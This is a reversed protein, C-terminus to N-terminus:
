IDFCIFRIIVGVRVSKMVMRSSEGSVMVAVVVVCGVCCLVDVFIIVVGVGSCPFWFISAM